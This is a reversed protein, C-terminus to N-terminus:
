AFNTQATAIHSLPLITFTRSSDQLPLIAKESFDNNYLTQILLKEGEAIDVLSAKIAKTSTRYVIYSSILTVGFTIATLIMVLMLVKKSWLIKNM